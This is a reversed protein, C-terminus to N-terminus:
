ATAMGAFQEGSVLRPSEDGLEDIFRSREVVALQAGRDRRIRVISAGCKGALDPEMRTFSSLYVEERPGGVADRFALRQAEVRADSDDHAGDGGFSPMMGEVLGLALVVRPNLSSIQGYSGLTM